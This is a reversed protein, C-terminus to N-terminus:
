AADKAARIDAMIRSRGLTELQDFLVRDYEFMPMSEVGEPRRIEAWYPKDALALAVRRAAQENTTSAISFGSQIHTVQWQGRWRTGEKFNWGPHVALPGVIRAEVSHWRAPLKYSGSESVAAVQVNGRTFRTM